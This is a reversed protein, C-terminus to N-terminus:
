KNRFRNSVRHCCATCVSLPASGITLRRAKNWIPTDLLDRGRLGSPRKTTELDNMKHRVSWLMRESSDEGRTRRLRGSQALLPSRLFM